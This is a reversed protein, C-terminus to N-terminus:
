EKRGSELNLAVTHGDLTNLFVRDGAVAVGGTAAACCTLGNAIGDAAPTYHWRVSAGPRALDLAFLTHPFPTLVLLMGGAALPASTHAGPSGTRFTFALTLKGVNAANVEKLSSFGNCPVTDSPQVQALLRCPAALVAVVCFAAFRLRLM